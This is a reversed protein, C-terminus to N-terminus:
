LFTQIFPLGILLCENLKDFDEMNGKWNRKISNITVKGLYDAVSNEPCIKMKNLQMTDAM